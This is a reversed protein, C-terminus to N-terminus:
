PKRAAPRLVRAVAGVLSHWRTTEARLQRRGRATLRYFKARRNTDSLGWFSAIWGRKELRHLAPYLSGQEVLLTDDSRREIIQAVLLGHAPGPTLTRLILMDLTGALLDGDSEARRSRRRM